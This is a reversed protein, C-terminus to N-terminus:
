CRGITYMDMLWLSGFLGSYYDQNDWIVLFGVPLADSLVAVEQYKLTYFLCSKIKIKLYTQNIKKAHKRLGKYM